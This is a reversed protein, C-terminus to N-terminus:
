WVMGYWVMGEEPDSKIEPHVHGGAGGGAGQGLFKPEQTKTYSGTDPRADDDAEQADPAATEFSCRRRPKSTDNRSRTCSTVPEIGTAAGFKIQWTLETTSRWDRPRLTTPELSRHRVSMFGALGFVWFGLFSGERGEKQM